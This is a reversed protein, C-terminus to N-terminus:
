TDSAHKWMNKNINNEIVFCVHKQTVGDIADFTAVATKDQNLWKNPLVPAWGIDMMTAITATMPGTVRLWRTPGDAM